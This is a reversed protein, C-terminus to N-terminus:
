SVGAPGLKQAVAQSFTIETYDEPATATLFEPANKKNGHVDSEGFWSKLIGIHWLPLLIVVAVISFCLCVVQAPTPKRESPNGPSQKAAEPASESLTDVPLPQSGCEPCVDGDSFERGCYNCRSQNTGM